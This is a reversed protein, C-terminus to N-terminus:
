IKRSTEQVYQKKRESLIISGEITDNILWDCIKNVIDRPSINKRSTRLLCSTPALIMMMPLSSTIVQEVLEAGSDAKSSISYALKAPAMLRTMMLFIPRLTPDNVKALILVMDNNIM